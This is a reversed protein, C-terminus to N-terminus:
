KAGKKKTLDDFEYSGTSIADGLMALEKKLKFKSAYAEGGTAVLRGNRAIARWRFADFGSKDKYIQFVIKQRKM